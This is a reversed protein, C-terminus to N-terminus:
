WANRTEIGDNLYSTDDERLGGIDVSVTAGTATTGNTWQSAPSSIGSVAPTVGASLSTLQMFDRGNLPLQEIQQNQIIQGESSSETNLLVSAASVSVTQTAIGTALTINQQSSEGVVLTFPLTQKTSFGASKVELTYLGPPLQTVRYGGQSNSTTPYAVGTATNRATILAKPIVAGTPDTVTGFITSTATQAAVIPPIAFCGLALLLTSAIWLVLSHSQRFLPFSRM